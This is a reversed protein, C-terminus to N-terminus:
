QPEASALHRRLEEAGHRLALGPQGTCPTREILAYLSALVLDQPTNVNVFDPGEVSHFRRGRARQFELFDEIPTDDRDGLCLFEDLDALTQSRSLVVNGSWRAPRLERGTVRPRIASALLSEVESGRVQVVGRGLFESPLGEFSVGLRSRHDLDDLTSEVLRPFPNELFFIDGLCLCCREEPTQSLASLLGFLPGRRQEESVEMKPILRRSPRVTLAHEIASAARPTTAVTVSRFGAEELHSLTRWLLTSDHVPLLAKPTIEGLEGFRSNSGGCLILASCDM